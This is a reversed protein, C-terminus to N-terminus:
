KKSAPTPTVPSAPVSFGPIKAIEASIWAALKPEVFSFVDPLASEIAALVMNLLANSNSPITISKNALLTELQTFAGAVYQSVMKPGFTDAILWGVAPVAAEGAVIGANVAIAAMPEISKLMTNLMDGYDIVVPPAVVPIPPTLKELSFSNAM